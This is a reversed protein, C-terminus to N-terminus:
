IEQIKTKVIEYMQPEKLAHSDITFTVNREHLWNIMDQKKTVSTPPISGKVQLCIM